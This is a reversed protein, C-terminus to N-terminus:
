QGGGAPWLGDGRHSGPRVVRVGDAVAAGGCQRGPIRGGTSPRQANGELLGCRHYRARRQLPASTGRRGRIRGPEAPDRATEDPAPRDGGTPGRHGELAFEHRYPRRVLRHPARLAPDVGPTFTTVDVGPPLLAARGTHYSSAVPSVAGLASCRRFVVPLFHKEYAALVRDTLGGGKLLSGSHYTLVVRRDGAVFAAMDALGPVPSHTYVVDVDLRRFERRLMIPWLPHLPTNSLKFLTPLRIVTVGDHIEVTRKRSESASLVVPHHSGSEQLARTVRHVYNEVGGVQPPYYPVVVAVNRVGAKRRGAARTFVDMTRDAQSAVTAKDLVFQRGQAGMRRAQAPDSIVDALRDALQGANGPEVLYGRKGEGVLDPLAGVESAVVPLGCAMAELAVTPFNDFSSPIALVANRRYAEALDPGRLAGSFRVCSEIGKVRVLEEFGRRADGDGVVELRVPVGRDRLIKTADILTALGKYATAEMLSGVFLVCAPSDASGGPSFMQPDVAPHVIDLVPAASSHMTNLVYSSACILGDARRVTRALVGREYALLGADLWWCGKRMPGSHYTLVFPVGACARAAFDALFPVPAHANVLDVREDEVIRRLARTWGLGLPTNSVKVPASLWRLELGTTRSFLEEAASRDVGPPALAAVVVRIGRSRVMEVALNYVYNEVGGLHPPVYPAVMLVTRVGVMDDPSNVTMGRRIRPKEPVRVPGPGRDRRGCQGPVLRLGALGTGPLRLGRRIGPDGRLRGRQRRDVEVDPEGAQARLRVDFEGGRCPLRAAAPALRRVGNSAYESGIIRLIWDGLIISVLIVPVLVGFMIRASKKILPLVDTTNQSAESFAAQAVAYSVANVLNAIQFAIFYYGAQEAGLGHLAIIPLLMLPATNLVNAVYASGSFGWFRHLDSQRRQWAPRM